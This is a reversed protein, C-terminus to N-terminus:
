VVSKRDMEAAASGQGLWLLAMGYQHYVEANREDLVVARQLAERVGVFTRPNRFTMLFGRAMWADASASDQQLAADVAAEGRGLVGDPALGAYPSRFLTTYPFLTSRPPRRIM